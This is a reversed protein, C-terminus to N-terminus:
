EGVPLRRVAGSSTDVHLVEHANTNAIWLAGSSAAMASPCQLKSSLEFRTVEGGGLKLKRIANNYSDLVWLHATDPDKVVALPYQLRADVRTGVADGFEFLGQGMLTQVKGSATQVSRVASAAADVVYLLSHVLSLGAPHAFASERGDGDLLALAGSGAVHELRNQARDYAWIQNCGALAVYVRDDSVAVSWPQNLSVSRVAAIAGETPQGSQGSGIVTMVDGDLLRIRRLAHNGTDAVYVVDRGLALGRPYRFAAASGAGDIFDATGGGFRRLVRGERTCELVAHHGSDTVYLLRDSVCIGNPFSLPMQPESDRLPAAKGEIVPIGEDAIMKAIVTELAERQRDGVVFQRVIGQPDVVVATPWAAIGYHQWSIFGSDHAVRVGIGLKSCAKRVFKPDREAEFKPVHVAIVQLAGAYKVRLQSVEELLNHSYASGASWFVVVVVYGRQALLTTPACNIWELGDQLEPAPQNLM